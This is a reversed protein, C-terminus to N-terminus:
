WSGSVELELSDAAALFRERRLELNEADGILKAALGRKEVAQRAYDAAKERFWKANEAKKNQVLAEATPEDSM